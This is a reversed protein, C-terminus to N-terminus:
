IENYKRIATNLVSYVRFKDIVKIGNIDKYHSVGYSIIGDSLVLELKKSENNTIESAIIFSLTQSEIEELTIQHKM